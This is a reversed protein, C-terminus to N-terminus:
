SEEGLQVVMMTGLAKAISKEGTEDTITIDVVTLNKGPRVVVGTAILREVDAPRLYNIKFEVTLANQTEETMMTGAAAGCTVDALTAILGGHLFGNHQMFEPRAACTLQVRGPEAETIEIGLLRVFNQRDLAARVLELLTRDNSM